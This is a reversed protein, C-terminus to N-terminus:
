QTINKYAKEFKTPQGLKYFILHHLVWLWIILGHIVGMYVKQRRNWNNMEDVREFIGWALAGALTHVGFLVLLITTLWSM